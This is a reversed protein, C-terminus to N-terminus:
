DGVYVLEWGLLLRALPGPSNTLLRVQHVFTYPKVKGNIRIFMRSCCV